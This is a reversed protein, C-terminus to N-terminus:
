HDSYSGKQPVRILLYYVIYNYTWKCQFRNPLYTSFTLLLFHKMLSTYHIVDPQVHFRDYTQGVGQNM